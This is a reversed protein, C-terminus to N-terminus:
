TSTNHVQCLNKMSQVYELNLPGLLLLPVFYLIGVLDVKVLGIVWSCVYPDFLLLHSDVNVLVVRQVDSSAPTPSMM